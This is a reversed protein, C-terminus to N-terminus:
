EWETKEIVKFNFRCSVCDCFGRGIGVVSPILALTHLSYMPVHRIWVWVEGVMMEKTRSRILQAGTM